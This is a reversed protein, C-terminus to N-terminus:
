SFSHSLPSFNGLLCCFPFPFHYRCFQDGPFHPWNISVGFLIYILGLLLVLLYGQLSSAPMTLCFNKTFLLFFVRAVMYLSKKLKTSPPETGPWTVKAGLYFTVKDFSLKKQRATWDLRWQCCQARFVITISINGLLHLSTFFSLSVSFWDHIAAGVGEILIKELCM